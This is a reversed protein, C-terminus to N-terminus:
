GSLGLVRTKPVGTGDGLIGGKALTITRLDGHTVLKPAVYPRKKAQSRKQPAVEKKTM